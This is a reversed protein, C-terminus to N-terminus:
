LEGGQGEGFLMGRERLLDRTVFQRELHRELVWVQRWRMGGEEEQEGGVRAGRGEGGEEVADRAEMGEWEGGLGRKTGKRRQREGEGTGTGGAVWPACM